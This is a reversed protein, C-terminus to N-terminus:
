LDGEGYNNIKHLVLFSGSQPQKKVKGVLDANPLM